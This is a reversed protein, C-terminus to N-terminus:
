RPFRCGKARMTDITAAHTAGNVPNISFGKTRQYQARLQDCNLDSTRSVRNAGIKGAQSVAALSAAGVVVGCSSQLGVALLLSSVQLTRTVARNVELRM